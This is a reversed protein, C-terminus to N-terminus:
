SASTPSKTQLQEHLKAAAGFAAAAACFVNSTPRPSVNGDRRAAASASTARSPQAAAAISQLVITRMRRHRRRRRSKLVFSAVAASLSTTVCPTAASACWMWRAAFLAALGLVQADVAVTGGRRVQETLWNVHHTATGTPIKVLDVGTGQLEAEAQVWYRSDAFVAANDIMVVLTGMSGSFGSFHQRGQWREPLYESLHPDASPVLLADVGERAMVERLTVLRARIPNTRTDM